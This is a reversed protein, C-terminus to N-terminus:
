RKENRGYANQQDRTDYKRIILAKRIQSRWWWWWWGGGGGNFRSDYRRCNRVLTNVKERIVATTCQFLLSILAYHISFSLRVCTFWEFYKYFICFIKINTWSPQKNRRRSVLNELAEIGALPPIYINVHHISERKKALVTRLWLSMGFKQALESIVKRM